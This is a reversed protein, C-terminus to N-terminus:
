ATCGDLLDPPEHRFSEAFLRFLPSLCGITAAIVRLLQSRGSGPPAGVAMLHGLGSLTLAAAEQRQQGPLDRIGFPM